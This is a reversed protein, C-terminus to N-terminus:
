MKVRAESGGKKRRELTIDTGIAYNGRKSEKERKSEKITM